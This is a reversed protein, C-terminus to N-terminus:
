NPVGWHSDSDTDDSVAKCYKRRDTHNTDHWCDSDFVCSVFLCADGGAVNELEDDSIAAAQRSLMQAVEPDKKALIALKALTKHDMM